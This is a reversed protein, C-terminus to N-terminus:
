EDSGEQPGDKMAKLLRYKERKIRDVLTPEVRPFDETLLDPVADSM